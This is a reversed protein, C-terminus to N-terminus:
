KAIQRAIARRRIAALQTVESLLASRKARAGETLNTGLHYDIYNKIRQVDAKTTVTEMMRKVQKVTEAVPQAKTAAAIRKDLAAKEAPTPGGSTVKTGAAPKVASPVSLGTPANITTKGYGTQSAYSPKAQAPAAPQAAQRRAVERRGLYNPSQPNDWGAPNAAGPTGQATKSVMQNAMGSINNKVSNAVDSAYQKQQKNGLEAQADAVATDLEPSSHSVMRSAIGAPDAKASAAVGSAYKAQKKAMLADYAANMESPTYAQGTAPNIAGTAIPVEVGSAASDDTADASAPPTYPIGMKGFVDTIVQQPVKQQALFASLQDSDTPKGAQHWNMKLKEKTVGTTFQRGFDSVAGGVGKVKKDLWNLGRGIAGPQATQPAPAGPMDPRYYDPLEARGPGAAERIVAKRCRDINEFVTYVGKTTLHITNSKRSVSENLAWTLVTLKQDIMQDAPLTKFQVSEKTTLWKKGGINAANWGPMLNGDDDYAVGREYGDPIADDYGANPVNVPNYFDDAAAADDTPVTTDGKPTFVNSSAQTQMNALNDARGSLADAQAQTMAAKDGYVGGTYGQWVSGSGDGTPPLDIKMGPQLPKDWEIHPNLAKIDEASVGNAQAIYGLQDGNQITYQGGAFQGAIGSSDGGTVDPNNTGWDNGTGPDFEDGASTSHLMANVKQAGLGMLAAGAGKGIVNSLKEGKIASDIAATLGAIAPLGAGGTALGALAILATKVFLQTKPYEKALLRYKKITDMLKGSQGGAVNALADTAKDYAVDVGAVPASKQISDLVGNIADKASTIGSGVIDKGRGLATRNAGTATNTMDQEAQAFVDLIEKESMKRESLMCGISHFSEYVLSENTGTALREHDAEREAKQKALRKKRFIERFYDEDDPNVGPSQKSHYRPKAPAKLAAYYDVDSDFNRPDVEDIIDEAVAHKKNNEFLDNVIM